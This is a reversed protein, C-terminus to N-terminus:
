FFLLGFLILFGIFGCFICWAAVIHILLGSKNVSEGLLIIGNSLEQFMKKM